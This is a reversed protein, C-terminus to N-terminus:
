SCRSVYLVESTQMVARGRFIVEAVPHKVTVAIRKSRYLSFKYFFINTTTISHFQEGKPFCIHKTSETDGGNGRGFGERRIEIKRDKRGGTKDSEEMKQRVNM